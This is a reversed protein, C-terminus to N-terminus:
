YIIEELFLGKAPAIGPPLNNIGMLSEKLISSHIKSQGAAILVFVIKRVMHYLFSNATIRFFGKQESFKWEVSRVIRETRGNKLYPRGYFNFNHSGVFMNAAEDLIKRDVEPWVRWFKNELHPDRTGQSIYNIDTDGFDPMM